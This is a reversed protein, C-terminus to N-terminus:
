KIPPAYQLGGESVLANATGARDILCGEMADSGSTGDYSGDCFADDYAEGYNGVAGLVAKVWTDGLPNTATGLDLDTATNLLVNHKANGQICTEDVQNGDADLECNVAAATAMSEYNTSTIGYEEATVMAYWVWAVVDNWDDDNDRTAAGLPEKSMTEAAIWTGASLAYESNDEQVLLYKRAAVASMDGTFAECEGSKIKEVAEAEFEVNVAEFAIGNLSFYDLLNGETTTGTGVCIKVGDLGMVSGSAAAQEFASEAVLVGQGDFFNIGAFDANLGADRSTTWTTTRILVDIEESALKEFRTSAQTADVYTVTVGLAAGLAECYAVDLGSRTGTDADLYGMGFQSTKVGCNISGRNMITDLTSVMANDAAGAAYGDDYAADVDEQSVDSGACGALAATTMVMMMTMALIRRM